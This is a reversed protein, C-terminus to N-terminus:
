HQAPVTAAVQTFYRQMAGAAAETDRARLGELIRWRIPTLEPRYITHLQEAAVRNTVTYLLVTNLSQAVVALIENHAARTILEFFGVASHARSLMDGNAIHAEMERLQHEIAAFDAETGAQCALRVLNGYVASRAQMLDGSAVQERAALERLSRALMMYAGKYFVLANEERGQDFQEVRGIFVVHDGAEHQAFMSCEFRAICAGVLPAGGHGATCALGDFKERHSKSSSAFRGSLDDQDDALVNIAFARAQRFIDISKSSLRLSWLVLPPDLSVSSFSNCTLGVPDGHGDITTIIAVGTPFCGLARRFAQADFTPPSPTM